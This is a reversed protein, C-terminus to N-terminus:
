PRNAKDPQPELLMLGTDRVNIPPPPPVLYDVVLHREEGAYDVAEVGPEPTQGHEGPTSVQQVLGTSVQGVEVLPYVGEVDGM